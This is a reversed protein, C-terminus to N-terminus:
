TELKATESELKEAEALHKEAMCKHYYADEIEADHTAIFDSEFKAVFEDRYKNFHAVIENAEQDNKNALKNILFDALTAEFDVVFADRFKNTSESTLVRYNPGHIYPTLKRTQM